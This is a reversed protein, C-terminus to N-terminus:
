RDLTLLSSSQMRVHRWPMCKISTESGFKEPKRETDNISRHLWNCGKLETRLGNVDNLLTEAFGLVLCLCDDILPYPWFRATVLVFKYYNTDPGIEATATLSFTHSGSM